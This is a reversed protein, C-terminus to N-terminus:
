KAAHEILNFSDLFKATDPFNTNLPTVVLMQYLISGVLYIHATIHASDNSAEFAVGPNSGLTIKQESALTGKINTVAGTEAGKLIDDPSKGATSAGYDCVAIILASSNSEATYTRMEFTGAATPVNQKEVEPASPFSATFGDAPYPYPKWDPAPPPPAAARPEAIIQFSDLFKATDAYKENLPTAVMTQYLVGSAIYMRSTIHLKDSDAEFATGPNSGQTIQKESVIHATMHDIAGKKATALLSQPDAGLGKAGYDCVGVYLATNGVEAVYSHLEYTDAGAPVSDKSVEPASPFLAQFGEAPTGFVKWQPSQASLSAAIAVLPLALAFAIFRLSIKRHM